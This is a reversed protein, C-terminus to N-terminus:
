FSRNLCGSENRSNGANASQGVRMQKCQVEALCRKKQRHRINLVCEHSHMRMKVYMCVHTYKGIFTLAYCGRARLAQSCPVNSYGALDIRLPPPHSCSPWSMRWQAWHQSSGIDFPQQLSLVPSAIGPLTKSCMSIGSYKMNQSNTHTLSKILYLHQSSKGRRLSNVVQQWLRM